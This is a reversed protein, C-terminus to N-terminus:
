LFEKLIKIAEKTSDSPSAIICPRGKSDAKETSLSVLDIKEAIKLEKIATTRGIKATTMFEDTSIKEDNALLKFLTGRNELGSDIALKVIPKVDDKTIHRREEIICSGSAIIKFMAGARTPEELDNVIIEDNKKQVKRVEVDHRLVGVIMAAEDIVNLAELEHKSNNLVVKNQKDLNLRRFFEKQAKQVIAIKQDADRDSHLIKHLRKKRQERTNNKLSSEMRYFLFRQGGAGFEKWIAAPIRVIAGLWMFFHKEKYEIKKLGNWYTFKDGDIINILMGIIEKLGSRTRFLTGLEPTILCKETMAPLLDDREEDANPAASLFAKATLNNVWVVDGQSELGSIIKLLTSKGSGPVGKFIVPVPQTAGSVYLGALVCLMTRYADWLEPYYRCFVMKLTDLNSMTKTKKM